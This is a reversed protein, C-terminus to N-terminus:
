FAIDSILNTKIKEQIYKQNTETTGLYRFEEV